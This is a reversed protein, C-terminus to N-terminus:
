LYDNFHIIFYIFDEYFLLSIFFLCSSYLLLNKVRFVAKSKYSHLILNTEFLTDTEHTKGADNLLSEVIIVICLAIAAIGCLYYRSQYGGLYGSVNVYENYARLCQIVASIIVGFYVSIAVLVVSSKEIIWRIQFLLLIPLFLLGLLAINNVSFFSGIKILSVHSAIGTWTRFFNQAFYVIYEGFNMHTRNAIDVYFGSEYYDTPDLLRYTPLISGTQFYVILYYGATALYVPLTAFFKRSMLFKINKEKISILVIYLFLSIFVVLGATLKSMFSIFLGLSITFYTAYNRKKESFRLLGFIFVSLGILALTDNNIGASDYALMPVSVVIAAYLCHLVPNKGIRTYGIYLILLLALASLVINFSRLKIFNITVINNQVKVAGSLRMIQYYLPPHGLYNFDKGFTYKSNTISQSSGATSNTNETKAQQLITMNKFDPIIKHTKELYAIYSVHAIEDPFRGVHEAYFIMKFGFFSFFVVYMLIILYKIKYKEEKLM